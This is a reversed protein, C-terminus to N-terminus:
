EIVITKLYQQKEDRFKVWYYGPILEPLDFIFYDKSYFLEKKHKWHVRADLGYIEVEVFEESAEKLEIKLKEAGPNPFVNIGFEDLPHMHRAEAPIEITLTKTAVSSVSSIQNLPLLTGDTKIITAGTISISFFAQEAFEGYNGIDDIVVIIKGKLFTGAIQQSFGGKRFLGVDVQRNGENHVIFSDTETADGFWTDSFDFILPQSLPMDYELRVAIGAVDEILYSPINDLDVTFDTTDGVITVQSGMNLFIDAQGQATQEPFIQKSYNKRIIESDDVIEIQGDGDADAHMFNVQNGLPNLGPFNGYWPTASQAEWDTSPWPRAPGTETDTLGTLLYDTMNVEGDANADGPWVCGQNLSVFFWESDREGCGYEIRLKYWGQVDIMQSEGVGILNYYRDYWFYSYLPSQLPAEMMVFPGCHVTDMDPLHPDPQLEAIITYSDTCNTGEAELMIEVNGENDPLEIEPNEQTSELEGDVYWKYGQANSSLNPINIDEDKCLYSNELSFYAIADCNSHLLKYVNLRGGSKCLMSFSSVPDLSQFLRDKIAQPNLNQQQSILLALAGTVVPAAMSTGSYYGYSDNPLTSLMGVGPAFLDVSNAGINSFSAPEDHHDSAAVSIINEHPYSAPYLPAADNNNGFNNGAAAVFTHGAQGAETIKADLLQSALGGGWSNNSLQAGMNFAYDLAAIADSAYGGGTENLIKLGMLRANWAVGSVGIGNDGRAAILGAVHTGHGSEHDDMPDNDGNVFDWGIFDDVYGNGDDDIGNEDDPDFIWRSGNWELVSGDNDFDEALNQWINDKLDPHNWDIGSDLVGIIASGDGTELEWARESEIDIDVTGGSQGKNDHFWQDDLLPDNPLGTAFFRMDPETLRIVHAGLSLIHQKEESTIEWVEWRQNPLIQKIRTGGFSYNLISDGASVIWRETQQAFMDTTCLALMCYLYFLNRM